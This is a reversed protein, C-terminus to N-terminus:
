RKCNIDMYWKSPCGVLAPLYSEEPEYLGPVVMIGGSPGSAATTNYGNVFAPMASSLNSFCYQECVGVNGTNDDFAGGLFTSGGGFGGPFLGGATISSNFINVSQGSPCTLKMELDGLFSHEMKVCMKEIDNPNQITAGPLFGSITIDTTYNTGSGDPLYTLSGFVVSDLSNLSATVYYVGPSTVLRTENVSSDDWLYTNFGSGADLFYSNSFCLNTDPGLDVNLVDIVMNDIATCGNVYTGTVSYTGATSAM